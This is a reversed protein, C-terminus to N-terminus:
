SSGFFGDSFCTFAGLAGSFIVGNAFGLAEQQTQHSMIIPWITSFPHNISSILHVGKGTKDHDM